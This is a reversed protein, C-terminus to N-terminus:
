LRFDGHCSQCTNDLMTAAKKVAAPSKSKVAKIFDQSAKEMDKSYKLWKGKAPRNNKDNMVPMAHSIKAIAITRNAMKILAPTYTKLKSPSPQDRDLGRLMREIGDPFVENAKEGVGFGGRKRPKFLAMVNLIAYEEDDVKYITKVASKVLPAIADAKKGAAVADAVKDVPPTIAKMIKDDGVTAPVGFILPSAALVAVGALLLRTILKM